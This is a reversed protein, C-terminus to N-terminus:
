LRSLLQRARSGLSGNQDLEATKELSKKAEATNGSNIYAAGLNFHASVNKPDLEVAKKFCPISKEVFVKKMGDIDNARYRAEAVRKYATGLENHAESLSPDAEISKTLLVIAKENDKTPGNVFIWGWNYYMEGPMSGKVQGSKTLLRSCEEFYKVAEDYRALKVYAAAMKWYAPAYSADAEIAKRLNALRKETDGREQHISAVNYYSPAFKPDISTAKAYAELARDPDRNQYFVGTMFHPYSNKPQDKSLQDLFGRIREVGDKFVDTKAAEKKMRDWDGIVGCATAVAFQSVADSGRLKAIDSWQGATIMAVLAKEDIPSEGQGLSWGVGLSMWVVVLAVAKGAAKM